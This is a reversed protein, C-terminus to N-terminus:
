EIKKNFITQLNLIPNYSHLKLSIGIYLVHYGYFIKFVSELFQDTLYTDDLRIEIGNDYIEELNNDSKTHNQHSM